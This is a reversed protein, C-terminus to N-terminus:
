TGFGVGVSPDVEDGSSEKRADNITMDDKGNRIKEVDVEIAIRVKERGEYLCAPVAEDVEKGGASFLPEVDAGDDDKLGCSARTVVIGMEMDQDGGSADSLVVLPFREGIERIIEKMTFPLKVEKAHEAVVKVVRVEVPVDVECPFFVGFAEDSVDLLAGNRRPAFAQSSVEGFVHNGRGNGNATDFKIVSSEDCVPVFVVLGVPDQVLCKGDEAEDSAHDFVDEGFSKLTNTVVAKV